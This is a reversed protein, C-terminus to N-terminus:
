QCSRLGAPPVLQFKAAALAVNVSRNAAEGWDVLLDQKNLPSKFQTKNPVRKGGVDTFATNTVSWRTKGDTGVLEADLVDFHGDKMDIALKETGETGALEVHEIGRTADWTLTGKPNAVMPPTGVALHLFDDPALDIHFFQAISRENCPGTIACNNQYDVYVFSQGDCAMEAMSSGGAPSLAAFRVKAGVAGMVLVEGKARQGGLWYDMTSDARFSTLEARAKALRAVIDDVTPEPYPRTSKGGGGGGGCAILFLVFALRM